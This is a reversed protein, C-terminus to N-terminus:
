VLSIVFLAKEWLAGMPGTRPRLPASRQSQHMGPFSAASLNTCGRPHSSTASLVSVTYAGTLSFPLFGQCHIHQPCM